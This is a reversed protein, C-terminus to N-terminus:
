KEPPSPLERLEDPQSGASTEDGKIDKVSYKQIVLVSDVTKLGLSKFGFILKQKYIIFALTVTIKGYNMMKLFTYITTNLTFFTFHLCKIYLM